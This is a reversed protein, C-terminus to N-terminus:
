NDNKEELHMCDWNSCMDEVAGARMPLPGDEPGGGGGGPPGAERPLLRLGTRWGWEM